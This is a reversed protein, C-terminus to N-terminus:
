HGCDANRYENKMFVQLWGVSEAPKLLRNASAIVLEAGKKGGPMWGNEEFFDVNIGLRELRGV